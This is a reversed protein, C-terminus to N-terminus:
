VLGRDKALWVPITLCIENKYHLLDAANLESLNRIYRTPINMYRGGTSKVRISVGSRNEGEFNVTVTAYQEAM